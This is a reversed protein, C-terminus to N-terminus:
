CRRFKKEAGLNAFIIGSPNVQRIIRFSNIVSPDKLAVSLSGSAMLLNTEKAVYALKENIAKTENSGGTMANIYFPQEM